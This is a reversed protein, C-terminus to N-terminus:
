ALRENYFEALHKAAQEVYEPEDYMEYHRAGDIVLIDQAQRAMHTLSRGDELSGTSGNQRAVIVQVPQTLLQDALHFADFGLILADSRYHRRNTSNEHRGRPTRYYNVAQLVDIDTIGAAKTDELTDPDM